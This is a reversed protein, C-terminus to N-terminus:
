SKYTTVLNEKDKTDEPFQIRGIQVFEQTFTQIDKIFLQVTCQNFDETVKERLVEAFKDQVMERWCHQFTLRVQDQDADSLQSVSMYDRAFAGGRELHEEFSQSQESLLTQVADVFADVEQTLIPREDEPKSESVSHLGKFYGRWEQSQTASVLPFTVDGSKLRHKIACYLNESLPNLAASTEAAKAYSEYDEVRDICDVQSYTVDRFLNEKSGKFGWCRVYGIHTKVRYNTWWDQAKQVLNLMCPDKNRTLCPSNMTFVYVKWEESIAESELLKQTQTIIIDESHEGNSYNPYYPGYMVIEDQKEIVAWSHQKYEAGCEETIDGHFELFKKNVSEHFFLDDAAQRLKLHELVKKGANQVDLWSSIQESFSRGDTAHKTEETVRVDRPAPHRCFTKLRRHQSAETQYRHLLSKLSALCKKSYLLPDADFLPRKRSLRYDCIALEM